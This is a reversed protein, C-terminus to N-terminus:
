ESVLDSIPVGAIARQRCDNCLTLLRASAGQFMPHDTMLAQSRAVLAKTSFRKGCATCAFPEAEAVVRPTRRAAPDLLFRPRLRIAREPCGNACLGCQVCREETFAVQTTNGPLSLANTPCLRICATCLTCKDAAIHVEGLPARPLPIPAVTPSSQALADLAALLLTRKDDVDPLHAPPLGQLAAIAILAETTEVRAIAAPHGLASLLAVCWAVQADLIAPDHLWPDRSDIAVRRYGMALAALWFEPGLSAVREVTLPTWGDPPADQVTHSVIWLGPGCAQSARWESLMRALRGIQWATGPLVHRVAGTPCVLACTGCGQCLHPEISVSEKDSHIAGAPCVALCASCGKVGQRRHACLTTDLAFYRPKDYGDRLRRAIELLAVKLAPYDDAPLSYWGPPPVVPRPQNGFDLVWDFHGDAHWSLPALDEQGHPTDIRAHFAGMWGTIAAPRGTLARLGRPLRAPDTLDTCLLAPRLGVVRLAELRKLLVEAQGIM